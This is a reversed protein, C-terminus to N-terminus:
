VKTAELLAAFSKAEGDTKFSGKTASEALQDLFKGARNGKPALEYSFFVRAGKTPITTAWVLDDQKLARIADAVDPDHLGTKRGIQSFRVGPEKRILNFVVRLHQDTVLLEYM